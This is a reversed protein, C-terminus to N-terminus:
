TETDFLTIDNFPSNLVADALGAGGGQTDTRITRLIIELITYDWVNDFVLKGKVKHVAKISLINLLLITNYYNCFM